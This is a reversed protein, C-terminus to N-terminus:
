DGAKRITVAAPLRALPRDPQASSADDAGVTPSNLRDARPEGPARERRTKGASRPAAVQRTMSEDGTNVTISLRPSQSTPRDLTWAVVQVEGAGAAPLTAALPEGAGPLFLRLNAGVHDVGSAVAVEVRGDSGDALWRVDIPASPKARHAHKAGDEPAGALVSAGTLLMALVAIIAILSRSEM